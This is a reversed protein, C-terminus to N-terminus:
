STDDGVSPPKASCESAFTLNSNAYKIDVLASMYEYRLGYELTTTKTLRFTDQGYGAAHLQRLNM